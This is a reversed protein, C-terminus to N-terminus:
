KRVLFPPTTKIIHALSLNPNINLFSYNTWIKADEEETGKEGEVQLTWGQM